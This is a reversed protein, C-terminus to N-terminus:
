KGPSGGSNKIKKLLTEAKAAIKEPLHSAQNESRAYLSRDLADLLATVEIIVDDPTGKEKLAANLEKRTLGGPTSIGKEELLALLQQKVNIASPEIISAPEGNRRAAPTKKQQQRKKRLIFLAAGGLLLVCSPIWLTSMIEPYEGESSQLSLRADSPIAGQAPRSVRISIANSQVTKFQATEPNFVVTSIAPITFNGERQPWATVALTKSGATEVSEKNLTTAVDPPNQRFSEPLHLAPLKLTFLNGTGSLILKLKLPEGAKLASKDAVLKLEFTGVAGSFGKPLPEPLARASISINPAKLQQRNEPPPSESNLLPDPTVSCLMTYGSIRITGSQVPAVRFRKVVATRFQEGNITAPLSKIYRETEAERAWIGQFSPNTENSIKPAIEKFYLRYTLLAEQGVWPRTNSISSLLFPKKERNGGAARASPAFCLLTVLLVALRFRFYFVRGAM